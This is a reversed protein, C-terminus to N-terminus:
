YASWLRGLFITLISESEFEGRLVNKQAAESFRAYVNADDLKRLADLWAAPNQFDEILLGGQGVSEALGGRDSAIVPIGSTQAELVVRGWAEEWVSPVILLRTGDYMTRMDLQPPHWEINPIKVARARYHDIQVSSVPWSEVFRFSLDPRAAAMALALEVGKKATPNIFLISNGRRQVFYRERSVIPYVVKPEIGFLAKVRRAVFISNAFYVADTLLRTRWAHPGFDVDRFFVAIRSKTLAACEALLKHDAGVVIWDANCRSAVLSLMASPERHRFVRYGMTEAVDTSNSTASNSLM